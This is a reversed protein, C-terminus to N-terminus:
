FEYAKRNTMRTKGTGRNKNMKKYLFRIRKIMEKHEMPGMTPGIMKKKRVLREFENGRWGKMWWPGTTINKKLHYSGDGLIDKFDNEGFLAHKEDWRDVVPKIPRPDGRPRKGLLSYGVSFARTIQSSPRFAHSAFRLLSQLTGTM